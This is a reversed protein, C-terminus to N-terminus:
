VQEVRRQEYTRRRLVAQALLAMDEKTRFHERKLPEPLTAIDVETKNEFNQVYKETNSLMERINEEGYREVFVRGWDAGYQDCFQARIQDPFLTVFGIDPRDRVIDIMVRHAAPVIENKWERGDVTYPLRVQFGTAPVADLGYVNDPTFEEEMPSKRTLDFTSITLTHIHPNGVIYDTLDRRQQDTEGPFGILVFCFNMIGADATLKLVQDTYSSETKKNMTKLIAPDNTELGWHIKRCGGRYLQEMFGPKSFAKELRAFTEWKADIGQEEIAKSLAFLLSPSSTDEMFKFYTAKRGYRKETIAQVEKIEEIIKEVDRVRYANSGYPIACFACRAYCGRTTQLPVLYEPYLYKNFPIDDFDAKPVGESKLSAGGREILPKPDGQKIVNVFDPKEDAGLVDRLVNLYPVEGDWLCLYDFYASIGHEEMLSDYCRTIMQGGLVIKVQPLKDRIAKALSFAPIIQDQFTIAIGVVKAETPAIQEDVMRNFFNLFPNAGHDDLAALVDDFNIREYKMALSRLGVHLSDYEKSKDMLANEIQNYYELLELPNHNCDDITFNPFKGDLFDYYFEINADIVKATYGNEKLYGKLLPLNLQAHLPSSVPTNVLVTDYKSM